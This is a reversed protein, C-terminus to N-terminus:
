AEAAVEEKSEGASAILELQERLRVLIAPRTEATLWEKLLAVDYTNGVLELAKNPKLDRLPADSDKPPRTIELKGTKLEDAVIPVNATIREWTAQDVVNTGPKLVLVAGDVTGMGLTRVRPQNNHVIIKAM